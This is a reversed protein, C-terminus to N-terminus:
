TRKFMKELESFSIELVTPRGHPCYQWNNSKSLDEILKMIEQKNLSQNIKIAAKCSIDILINQYWDNIKSDNSFADLLIEKIEQHNLKNILFNPISRVIFSNRGFTEIEFGYEDLKNIYDKITDAILNTFSIKMPVAFKQKYWSDKRSKLKDYIVREHAAHQDIMALGKKNQFIIFSNHIQGLISINDFVGIARTDNIENYTHDVEAEKLDNQNQEYSITEKIFNSDNNAFFSNKSYDIEKQSLSNKQNEVKKEEFVADSRNKQSNLDIDTASKQNLLANKVAKVVLSHIYKKDSFRVEKKSPHVNVDVKELPVEIFL